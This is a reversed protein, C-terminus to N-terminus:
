ISVLISWKKLVTIYLVKHSFQKQFHYQVEPFAGAIENEHTKQNPCKGLGSIIKSLLKGM